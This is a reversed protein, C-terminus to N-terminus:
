FVLRLLDSRSDAGLKKLINAQHFKVTRTSIGLGESMAEFGEGAILRTLIDRERESLKGRTALRAVRAGHWALFLEDDLVRASVSAVSGILKGRVIEWHSGVKRVRLGGAADNGQEDRFPCDPCPRALGHLKTYCTQAPVPLPEAFGM